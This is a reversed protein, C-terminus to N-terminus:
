ALLKWNETYDVRLDIVALADRGVCDTLVASLERSSDVRYGEAGMSQALKVFDPNQFRVSTARGCAKEM